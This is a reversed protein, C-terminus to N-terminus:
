VPAPLALLIPGVRFSLPIVEPDSPVVEPIKLTQLKEKNDLGFKARLGDLKEFDLFVANLKKFLEGDSQGPNKDPHLQIIKKKYLKRIEELEMHEIEEYPIGLNKSLEETSAQIVKEVYIKKILNMQAIVKDAYSCSNGPWYIGTKVYRNYKRFFNCLASFISRVFSMIGKEFYKTQVKDRMKELGVTSGIEKELYLSADGREILEQIVNDEPIAQPMVTSFIDSLFVIESFSLKKVKCTPPLNQLEAKSVRLYYTGPERPQDRKNNFIFTSGAVMEYVRTKEDLHEDTHALMFFWEGVKMTSLSHIM